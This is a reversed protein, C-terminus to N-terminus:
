KSRTLLTYRNAVGSVRYKSLLATQKKYDESGIVVYDPVGSSLLALQEGGLSEEEDTAHPKIYQYYNESAILVVVEPVNYVFISKDAPVTQLLATVDKTRHSNYYTAVYSTRALQYWQGVVLLCVLALPVFSFRALAAVHKKAWTFLVSLNLPLFILALMAAPMLYRYWGPLRMYAALVIISFFFAVLETSTLTDANKRRIWVSASWVVMLVLTYLPTVETVFRKLNQLILGVLDTANYPNAYFSLAGALSDSSGFQLHVWVAIPILFAAAGIAVNKWTLPIQKMRVLWTGAYAPLLLIFIPKTVVCLGVLLGVSVYGRSSTFKSRELRILAIISAALFFFGPIEGLVSKGDGYLMPFSSLALASLGGVFPGAILTMGLWTLAVFGVIFLAMVARGQLVGAGFFHYSLSIPGVFPFGGTVSGASDLTRPAVQIGQTGYRALNLATQTYMGEDFWIGPSESLRYTAAGVAVCLALVGLGLSIISTRTMNNLM